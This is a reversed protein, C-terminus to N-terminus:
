AFALIFLGVFLSAIASWYLLGDFTTAVMKRGFSPFQEVGASNTRDFKRKEKWLGLVVGIATLAFGYYFADIHM